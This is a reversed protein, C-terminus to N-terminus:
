RPNPNPNPLYNFLSEFNEPVGPWGPRCFRLLHSDVQATPTKMKKSVLRGIKVFNEVNQPDDRLYGTCFISPIQRGLKQPPPPFNSADSHRADNLANDHRWLSSICGCDRKASSDIYMYMYIRPKSETWASHWTNYKQLCFQYKCSTIHASPSQLKSNIRSLVSTPLSGSM